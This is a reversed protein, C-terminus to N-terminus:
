ADVATGPIDANDVEVQVVSKLTLGLELIQERGISRGGHLVEVASGVDIVRVGCGRLANVANTLTNGSDVEDDVLLVSSGSAAGYFYFTSTFCHPETWSLESTLGLRTKYAIVAPLDLEYALAVALPIGGPAFGIIYDPPMQVELSAALVKATARLKEPTIAYDCTDGAVNMLVKYTRHDTNRRACIGVRVPTDINM